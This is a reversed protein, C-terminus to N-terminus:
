KRHASHRGLFSLLLRNWAAPQEWHPNHGAEAVVHTRVDRLHRAHLRMVSPPSYLDADGTVLQVPLTLTELAAWTITHALAQAFADSTRARANVALWAAVGNQDGARYSPGLEKVAVPLDGFPEPQLAATLALYEADQVGMVSGSVTLSLLHAEHGLAYDLAVPGGAASGSLHFRGLGLHGALTHLDGSLTDAESRTGAVSGYAGRRSYGIVRYGAAALVPQQYPWSEGSGSGPHLLVVPEGDGGTDWCWLSGGGAVPVRYETVPVQEPVPVPEWVADSGSSARATGVAATTTALAALAAGGVVARRSPTRKTSGNEHM